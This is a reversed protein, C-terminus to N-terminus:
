YYGLAALQERASDTVGHGDLPERIGPDASDFASEVAVPDIHETATVQGPGHIDCAVANEGWRYRKRVAGDPSSTYVARSPALFREPDPCNDEFRRRLDATVPQKTTHVTDTAFGDAVDAAGLAVDPFATLAAPRHITAGDGGGPPRVLLPVHLLQEHMPVIHSVAPPEGPLLGPEGFGDGHDGCVVVLTEELRGAARLRDIIRGVIADAQRIGGDYLSEIGTLQWYPRDGGHFTWEWRPPLRRQLERAESDGWHDFAERPEFPRHADMLNVCAAWPGSRSAVWEAFAEAYYFGDPGPNLETTDFREPPDDPVTRVTEFAEHLGVDHSAVFGNETFLGTDYGRGALTDFVTHGPHLRDHITVRHEHAEFGTLLSVHSPLSWNSPARAQTYVTSEEALSALTPTTQRRYGYLSCNQARVSDLVVLLVNPGTDGAM